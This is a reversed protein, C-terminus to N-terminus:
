TSPVALSFLSIIAGIALVSGLGAALQGRVTVMAPQLALVHRASWSVTGVAAGLGITSWLGIDEFLAGAAVAAVVSAVVSVGLAVLVLVPGALKSTLLDAVVSVAVGAMAMVVVASGRVSNAAVVATAGSAILVLGGFSALLTLVLGERGTRRVLQGLFSLVIGLAVAASVWRVDQRLATFVIAVAAIALVASTARPTYSGALTPWGWAFVLALALTSGLLAAYGFTASVLLLVAGVCTAAVALPRVRDTAVVTEPIAPTLLETPDSPGGGRDAPTDDPASTM